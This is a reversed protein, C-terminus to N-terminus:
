DSHSIKKRQHKGQGLEQYNKWNLRGRKRLWKLTTSRGQIGYKSQAQRYTLYGKKL